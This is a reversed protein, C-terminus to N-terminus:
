GNQSKTRSKAGRRSREKDRQGGGREERERGRIIEEVGRMARNLKSATSLRSGQLHRQSDRGCM